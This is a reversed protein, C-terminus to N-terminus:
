FFKLFEITLGDGGPASGTKMGMLAHGAESETIDGECSNSEHEELKPFDAGQAGRAKDVSLPELKGKIRFM